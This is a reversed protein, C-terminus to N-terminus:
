CPLQEVTRAASVSARHAERWWRAQAVSLYYEHSVVAPITLRVDIQRVILALRATAVDPLAKPELLTGHDTGIGRKNRLWAVARALAGDPIPPRAHEASAGEARCAHFRETCDRYSLGTASGSETGSTQRLQVSADPDFLNEGDGCDEGLLAPTNLTELGKLYAHAAKKSGM